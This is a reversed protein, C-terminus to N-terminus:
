TGETEASAGTPPTASQAIFARLMAAIVGIAVQQTYNGDVDPKWTRMHLAHAKGVRRWGAHLCENVINPKIRECLALAADLSATVNPVWTAGRWDRQMHRLAPRWGERRSMELIEPDTNERTWELVVFVEGDIERDAGEAAEVRALLADLAAPEITM